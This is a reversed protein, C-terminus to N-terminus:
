RPAHGDDITILYATIIAIALLLWICALLCTFQQRNSGPVFVDVLTFVVMFM